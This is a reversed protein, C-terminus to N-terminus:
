RTVPMEPSSVDIVSAGDAIKRLSRVVEVKLELRDAGGWRVSAGDQLVTQVDDQTRASVEEVQGALKPPLASVVALAARLTAASGDLPVSVVPLDEPAGSLEDLRVGEDDLLVYRGDDPVAAVPVRSTLSVTIGRPWSRDVAVDKVGPVQLIQEDLAGTDVRPLPTGSEELVLARVADADVSPEAGTVVVEDADLAFLESWGAAWAAAGVVVLGLVALLATRWSRHRRMASREALRDAMATSVRPSASGSGAKGSGASGPGAPRRGRGAASSASASSAPAPSAASRASPVVDPSAM